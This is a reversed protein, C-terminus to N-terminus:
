PRKRYVTQNVISGNKGPFVRLTPQFWEPGSVFSDIDPAYTDGEVHINNRTVYLTNILPLAMEYIRSGGIFFVNNYAEVLPKVQNPHILMVASPEPFVDPHSSSVVANQRGPLPKCGLSEWTKRGMILLSGMTIERFYPLDNELEEPIKNNRGIVGNKSQNWIAAIQKQTSNMRLYANSPALRCPKRGDRRM